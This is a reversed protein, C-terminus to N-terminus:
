CYFVILAKQKRPHKVKCKYGRPHWLHFFFLFEPLMQLQGALSSYSPSAQDEIKPSTSPNSLWAANRSESPLGMERFVLM